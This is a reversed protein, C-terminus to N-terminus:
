EADIAKWAPRSTLREWYAAVRAPVLAEEGVTYVLSLAYGLSIDAASFGDDLVYDRGDLRADLFRLAKKTESRIWALIAGDGDKDQFYFKLAVIMSAYNAFGAEGFELWQLYTGFDAEGPLRGLPSPGYRGLLYSMIAISEVLKTDGDTLVPIKALPNLSKYEESHLYKRDLPVRKVEHPLGMEHLLWLVRMSRTKPCHYLTITM